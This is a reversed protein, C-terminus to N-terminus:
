EKMSFVVVIQVEFDPIKKRFDSKKGFNQSKKPIKKQSNKFHLGFWDLTKKWHESSVPTQNDLFLIAPVM